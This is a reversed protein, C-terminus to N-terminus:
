SAFEDPITRIIQIYYLISYIILSIVFTIAISLISISFIFSASIRFLPFYKEIYISLLQSILLSLVVGFIIGSGVVLTTSISMHIIQSIKSFGLLYLSHFVPISMIANYSLFAILLILGTCLGIFGYLSVLDKIGAGQSRFSEVYQERLFSRTSVARDKFLEDIAHSVIAADNRNSLRVLISSAGTAASKQGYPRILKDHILIGYSPYLDDKIDYIGRVRLSMDRPLGSMTFMKSSISMSDGVRINFRNALDRGVLVSDADDFWQKAFANDVVIDSNTAIMDEPNSALVPVDKKEGGYTAPVFNIGAVGEVGLQASKIDNIYRVPIPYRPATANTVVLIKDDDTFISGKNSQDIGNLALILAVMGSIFLLFFFTARDEILMRLSITTIPHLIM